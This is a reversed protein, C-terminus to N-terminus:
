PTTGSSRCGIQMVHDAAYTPTAMFFYMAGVFARAFTRTCM